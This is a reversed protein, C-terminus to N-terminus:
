ENVAEKVSEGGSEEMSETKTMLLGIESKNASRGDVIGTVKGSGIM